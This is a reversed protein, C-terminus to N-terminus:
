IIQSCFRNVNTAVEAKEGEYKGDIGDNGSLKDAYKFENLGISNGAM